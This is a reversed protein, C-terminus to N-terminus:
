YPSVVFTRGNTATLTDILRVYCGCGMELGNNQQKWDVM